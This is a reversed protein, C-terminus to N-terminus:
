PIVQADELWANFGFNWSDGLVHCPCVWADFSIPKDFELVTKQSLEALNFTEALSWNCDLDRIYFGWEGIVTGSILPDIEICVTISTCNQVPADMLIISGEVKKGDILSFDKSQDSFHSILQSNDIKMIGTADRKVKSQITLAFILCVILVSVGCIAYLLKKRKKLENDKKESQYNASSKTPGTPINNEGM